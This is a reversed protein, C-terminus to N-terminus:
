EGGESSMARLENERRKVIKEFDMPPSFVPALHQRDLAPAPLDSAEVIQKDDSVSEAVASSVNMAAVLHWLTVLFIIAAVSVIGIFFRRSARALEPDARMRNFPQGTFQRQEQFGTPTEAVPNSVLLAKRKVGSSKEAVQLMLPENCSPCTRSRAVETVM